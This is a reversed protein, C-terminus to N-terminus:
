SGMMRLCRVMVPPAEEDEAIEPAVGQFVMTVMSDAVRTVQVLRDNGVFFLGDYTGDGECAFAMQKTFHGEPSFVDFTQLIGEPQERCGRSSLVWLTGDDAVHLSPQRWSGIDPDTEEVEYTVEFPTDAFMREMVGRLRAMEYDTRKWSTYDREIVRELTGDPRYVRIAYRDRDPAVYTRGDPGLTMRWMYDRIFNAESFAFHAFDLSGSANAFRATRHGEPDVTVLHFFATQHTGETIQGIMSMVLHDGRAVAGFSVCLSDNGADYILSPRPNGSPDVLVLKPPIQMLLGISGDGRIVMARPDRVEGPGDGERFLRRLFDGSPGYVFVTAQQADFVYINGNEDAAVHTVLGYITEDEEGGHSWIEELQITQVGEPPTAGNRIHLVGDVLTEQGGRCAGVMVLALLLLIPLSGLVARTM